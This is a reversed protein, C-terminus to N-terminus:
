HVLNAFPLKGYVKEFEGLLEKELERPELRPTPKWCLLLERSDRLQWIYRGGWHGVPEGSGFRLYQRIRSRLTARTKSGGAKGVYLVETDDVWKEKLGSLPVAPERGKFYGGTSRRRLVLAFGRPRMVLYVGKTPPIRELAQSSRLQGVPVFGDFGLQQVHGRSFHKMM